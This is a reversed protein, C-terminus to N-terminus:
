QQCLVNGDNKHLIKRLMKSEQNKIEEKMENNECLANYVSAFEDHNIYSNISAKCILVKITHLKAKGLQGLKAKGLLMMEDHKTRKKNIISNNKKIGATIANKLGVESCIKEFYNLTKRVKKYKDGMLDNNKTKKYFIIEQQM